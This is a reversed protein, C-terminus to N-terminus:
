EFDKYLLYKRRIKKFSSLDSQWSARIADISQGDLIQKRLVDTGALQDFFPTFFNAKDPYSEYMSKLWYIYLQKFDLLLESAFDHLQIGNVLTDQYPPRSVVGHIIRPTFTIDGHNFGPFGILEFPAHTGRGVSVVTGEFWCLSPYLYVAQMNQLNPSPAVPLQYFDAHTYNKVKIVKLRCDVGDKLWKEEDIMTAYEGVTMGHVIPISQMGVFSKYKEQLVCGDVYFGNPNPRDLVIFPINSHACAEMVLQLTSIYTYFRVGVDQIDFLVVDVDKLDDISPAKKKGYLSIIPLKTKPDRGDKIQDGAGVNGRFGHEPSFVKMLNVGNQLLVDALHQNGVMSTQNAVLAVKKGKLDSLYVSTQEAGNLVDADTLKIQAKLNFVSLIGILLMYFRTKM